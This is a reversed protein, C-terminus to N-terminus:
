SMGPALGFTPVNNTRLVFPPGLSLGGSAPWLPAGWVLPEGFGLALASDWIDVKVGKEIFVVAFVFNDHLCKTCKQMKQMKGFKLTTSRM